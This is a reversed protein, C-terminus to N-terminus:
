IGGFRVNSWCTHRRSSERELPNSFSVRRNMRNGRRALTEVDVDVDEVDGLHITSDVKLM